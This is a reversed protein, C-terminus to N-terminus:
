EGALMQLPLTLINGVILFPLVAAELVAGIFWMGNEASEQASEFFKRFSLGLADCFSSPYSESVQTWSEDILNHEGDYLRLYGNGTKNATIIMGDVSVANERSDYNKIDFGNLYLEKEYGVPLLIEDTMDTESYETFWYSEECFEPSVSLSDTSNFILESIIRSENTVTLRYEANEAFLGNDVSFVVKEDSIRYDYDDASISIIKTGGESSEIEYTLGWGPCENTYYLAIKGDFIKIDSFVLEEKTYIADDYSEESDAFGSLSFSFLLTTLVLLIATYKKINKM